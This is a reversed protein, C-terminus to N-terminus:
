KDNSLYITRKKKRSSTKKQLKTELSEKRKRRREGISFGDSGIHIKIILTTICKNIRTGCYFTQFDLNIYEYLLPLNHKEATPRKSLFQFITPKSFIIPFLTISRLKGPFFYPLSFLLWSIQLIVTPFDKIDINLM